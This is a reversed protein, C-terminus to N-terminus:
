KEKEVMTFEIHQDVLSSLIDSWDEDICVDDFLVDFFTQEWTKGKWYDIKDCFEEWSMVVKDSM